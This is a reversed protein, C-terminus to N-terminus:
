RGRHPGQNGGSPHQEGGGRNPTSRGGGGGGSNGRNGGSPVPGSSRPTVIPQRMDLPPRSVERGSDRPASQRWNGSDRQAEPASGRSPSRDWSDHRETRNMVPEDPTSRQTPPLRRWDNGRDQTPSPDERQFRDRSAPAETPSTSGRPAPESSRDFRRWQQNGETSPARRADPTNTRGAPNTNGPSSNGETGRPSTNGPSRRWDSNEGGAQKRQGRDAPSAATGPTNSQQAPQGLRRWSQNSGSNGAPAGPKIM